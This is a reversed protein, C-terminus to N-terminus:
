QTDLQQQHNKAAQLASVAAQHLQRFSSRLENVSARIQGILTRKTQTLDLTSFTTELSNTANRTTNYATDLLRLQRDLESTDIGQSAIRNRRTQLKQFFEEYRNLRTTAKDLIRNLVDSIRQTRNTQSQSQSPPRNNPVPQANGLGASTLFVIICLFIPRLIKSIKM